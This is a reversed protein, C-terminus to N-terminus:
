TIIIICKKLCYILNALACSSALNSLSNSLRNRRGVLLVINTGKTTSSLVIPTISTVLLISPSNLASSSPSNTKIPYTIPIQM